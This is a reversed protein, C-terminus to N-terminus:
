VCHPLHLVIIAHFCIVTELLINNIQNINAPNIIRREGCLRVFLNWNANVRTKRQGSLMPLLMESEAAV